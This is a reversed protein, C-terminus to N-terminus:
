SPVKSKELTQVELYVNRRRLFLILNVILSVMIVFIYCIFTILIVALLLLFYRRLTITGGITQYIAVVVDFDFIYVFMSFIILLVTEFDLLTILHSLGDHHFYKWKWIPLYKKHIRYKTKCFVCERTMSHTLWLRICNSHSYGFDGVCSCYTEDTLNNEDKCIWCIRLDDTKM